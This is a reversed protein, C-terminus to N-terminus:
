VNPDEQGGSVRMWGFRLENVVSPSFIHTEGVSLNVTHTKLFRGFGPLLTENLVSSGFTDLENADFVSARGFASDSM